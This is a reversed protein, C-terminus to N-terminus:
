PPKYFRDYAEQLEDFAFTGYWDATVTITKHGALQSVQALPMGEQIRKRCWRHRWQHPSCPEKIQLKTKYRDLIESIGAASLPNGKATTFVHDSKSERIKLWKVLARRTADSMVVTRDMDGKEHIIARRQKLFLNSVKLDAIGGRRANTSELFNLLAYDRPNKKAANLIKTANEDSIGKRTRRPLRPLRLERALDVPLLDRRHLFKYFKRVARIYGHKTDPKLKSRELNEYWAFLDLEIISNIARDKGGIQDAFNDLKDRYWLKTKPARGITEIQIFTEIAMAFNITDTTTITQQIM